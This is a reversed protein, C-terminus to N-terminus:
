FPCRIKTTEKGEEEEESNNWLRAYIRMFSPRHLFPYLCHVLNWYTKVLGDAVKRPPLVYDNLMGRYHGRTTARSGRSFSSTRESGGGGFLSESRSISSTAEPSSATKKGIVERVEKMFSLGSSSGFYGHRDNDGDDQNRSDSNNVAGM